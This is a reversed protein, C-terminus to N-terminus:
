WWDSLVAANVPIKRWHIPAPFALSNGGNLTEGRVGDTAFCYGRIGVNLYRGKHEDLQREVEKWRSANFSVYYERSSNPALKCLKNAKYAAVLNDLKSADVKPPAELKPGDYIMPMTEPNNASWWQFPHICRSLMELGIPGSSKNQICFHVWFHHSNECRYLSKDLYINALDGRTACQWYPENFTSSPQSANSATQFFLGLIALLIASSRHCIM